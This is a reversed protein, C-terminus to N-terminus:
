FWDRMKALFGQSKPFAEGSIEAFKELAERQHTNLKTPVEVTVTVYQDGRERANLATVGKDRLRFRKGGQTGAPVKLKVTGEITPVDVEAGLAAQTFSIPM